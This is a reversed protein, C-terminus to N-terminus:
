QAPKTIARLLLEILNNGFEDSQSIEEDSAVLDISRLFTYLCSRLLRVGAEDFEGDDVGQRLIGGLMASEKEWTLQRIKEARRFDMRILSKIIAYPSQSNKAQQMRQLVFLRLKEAAPADMEAVGLLQGAIKDSEREVVANYIEKKNKFYTYITRRGKDSASAIDGITTNDVGQRIFLQKASEILKERTRLSM